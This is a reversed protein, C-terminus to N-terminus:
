ESLIWVCHSQGALGNYGHILATRANDVQHAGAEGRIQLVGEIMRALGSAMPVHAALVGGSPNVPLAGKLGTVGEQVLEGAKGRPCLGLGEMWMLEQYSYAEFLEVVDIENCPDEIGASSYAKRAAIELADMEALDRDGLFYADACYGVGKLWVPKKRSGQSRNASAMILACAGDNFIGAESERLPDAYLPSSMVQELTMETKWEVLPNKCANNYNKVAVAACQEPTVRYKEQYRRAQMASAVHVDPGLFKTYIYDYMANTILNPEGESSKCHAVVLTTGYAGSLVRMMGYVAGFTGDGEVTSINKGQGYAAGCVDSVAMSSITRGDYFDNSVTIINDIDEITLGADQLAKEVAEYVMEAYNQEEKKKEFLTQGVGIISVDAM